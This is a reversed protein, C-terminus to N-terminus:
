FVMHNTLILSTLSKTASQPQAFDKFDKFCLLNQVIKFIKLSKHIKLNKHNKINKHNKLNGLAGRGWIWLVRIGFGVNGFGRMPIQPNHIQPNPARPFKLFGLM